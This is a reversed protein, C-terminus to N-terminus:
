TTTRIKGGDYTGRKGNFSKRRHVEATDCCVVRFNPGGRVIAKGEANRRGRASVSITAENGRRDMITVFFNKRKQGNRKAM